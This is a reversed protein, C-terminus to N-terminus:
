AATPVRGVKKVSNAANSIFSVLITVDFANPYTDNGDADTEKVGADTYAQNLEAFYRLDRAYVKATKEDVKQTTLTVPAMIGGSLTTMIQYESVNAFGFASLDVDLVGNANFRFQSVVNNSRGNVDDVLKNVVDIVDVFDVEDEATGLVENLTKIKSEIADVEESTLTTLKDVQGQLDNL